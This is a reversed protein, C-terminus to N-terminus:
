LRGGGTGIRHRFLGIWSIGDREKLTYILIVRRDVSLYELHDKRIMDRM